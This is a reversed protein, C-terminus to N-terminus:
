STTTTEAPEDHELQNLKAEAQNRVASGVKSTELSLEVESEMFVLGVASRYHQSGVAQVIIAAASHTIPGGHIAEMTNHTKPNLKALLPVEVAM